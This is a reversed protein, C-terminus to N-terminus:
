EKLVKVEEYNYCLAVQQKNLHTLAQLDRKISMHSVLGILADKFPTSLYATQIDKKVYQSIYYRDYIEARSHGM